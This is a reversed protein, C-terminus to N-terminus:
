FTRTTFGRAPVAARTRTTISDRSPLSTHPVTPTLSFTISALQSASTSEISYLSNLSSSARPQVASFRHRVFCSERSQRCRGRCGVAIRIKVAPAHHRTEIFVVALFPLLNWERGPVHKMGFLFIKDHIVVGVILINVVELGNELISYCPSFSHPHEAIM